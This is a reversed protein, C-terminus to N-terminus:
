IRKFTYEYIFADEGDSYYHPRQFIKVFGLSHYLAVASQNSPRVELYLARITTMSKLREMLDCLLAKAVGKQRKTESTYVFLLEAQHDQYTALYWGYWPKDASTVAAGALFGPHAKMTSLCSDATWFSGNVEWERALNRFAKVKDDALFNEKSVHIVSFSDQTM